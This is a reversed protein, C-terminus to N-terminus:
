VVSKRDKNALCGALYLNSHVHGYAPIGYWFITKKGEKEMGSGGDIKEYKTIFKNYFFVGKELLPLGDNEGTVITVYINRISKGGM